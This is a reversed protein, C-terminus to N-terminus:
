CCWSAFLSAVLVLLLLKLLLKPLIQFSWWRNENYILWLFDDVFVFGLGTGKVPCAQLISSWNHVYQPFFGMLACVCSPGLTSVCHQTISNPKTWHSSSIINSDNEKQKIVCKILLTLFDRPKLYKLSCQPAHCVSSLTFIGCSCSTPSRHSKAAALMGFDIM